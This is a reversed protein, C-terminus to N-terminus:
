AACGPDAIGFHHSRGTSEMVGGGAPAVGPGADSSIAGRRMTRAPPAAQLKRPDAWLVIARAEPLSSGGGHADAEDDVRNARLPRGIGGHMERELRVAAAVLHVEGA